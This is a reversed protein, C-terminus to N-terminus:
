IKRSMPMSLPVWATPKWNHYEYGYGFLGFRMEGPEGTGATHTLFLGSGGFVNTEAPAPAAVAFALLLVALFLSVSKVPKRMEKLSNAEEQFERM